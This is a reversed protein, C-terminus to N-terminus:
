APALSGRAGMSGRAGAMRDSASRPLAAAGAAEAAGVAQTGGVRRTGTSGGCVEEDSGSSTPSVSTTAKCPPQGRMPPLDLPPIPSIYPLYLPRAHTPTSRRRGECGAKAHDCAGRGELQADGRERAMTVLLSEPDLRPTREREKAGVGRAHRGTGRELEGRQLTGGRREVCREVGGRWLEIVEGCM